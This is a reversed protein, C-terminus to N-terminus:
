HTNNPSPTNLIAAAEASTPVTGPATARAVQEVDARTNVSPLLAIQLRRSPLPSQQLKGAVAVIAASIGMVVLQRPTLQNAGVVMAIPNAAIVTCFASIATSALMYLWDSIGLSKLGEILANLRSDTSM